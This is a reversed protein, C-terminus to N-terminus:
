PVPNSGDTGLRSLFSDRESVPVTVSAVFIRRSAIALRRGFTPQRKVPGTGRTHDRECRRLAQVPIDGSLSVVAGRRSTAPGQSDRDVAGSAGARVGAPFRPKEVYPSSNERSVPECRVRRELSISEFKWYALATLRTTPGKPYTTRQSRTRTGALRKQSLATDAVRSPSTLRRRRPPGGCREISSPLTKRTSCRTAPAIAGVPDAAIRGKALDKMMMM